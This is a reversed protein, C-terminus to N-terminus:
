SKEYLNGKGQEVAARLTETSILDMAVQSSLTNKLYERVAELTDPDLPMKSKVPTFRPCPCVTANEDIKQRCGDLAHKTASHGCVCYDTEKM